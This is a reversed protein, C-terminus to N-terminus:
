YAGTMYMLSLIISGFTSVLWNLVNSAALLDSLWTLVPYINLLIVMLVLGLASNVVGFVGGLASWICGGNWINDLLHRPLLLALHIIILIIGMTVLFTLLARWLHDQAFSMWGLVYVAFAGTLSLAIIFALLGFFEKAAGQKLGGLFSFVLILAVIIDIIIGAYTPVVM